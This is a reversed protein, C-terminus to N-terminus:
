RTLSTKLRICKYVGIWMEKIEVECTMIKNWPNTNACVSRSLKTKGTKLYNSGSNIGYM